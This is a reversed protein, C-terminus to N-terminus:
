PNSGGHPSDLWERFFTLNYCNRMAEPLWGYHGVVVGIVRLIVNGGELHLHEDNALVVCSWRTTSSGLTPIRGLTKGWHFTYM